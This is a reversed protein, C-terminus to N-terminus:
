WTVFETFDIIQKSHLHWIIEISYHNEQFILFEVM